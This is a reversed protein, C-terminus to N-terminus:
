AQHLFATHMVSIFIGEQFFNSAFLSPVYGFTGMVRTSIHTEADSSLKALGFDAVQV